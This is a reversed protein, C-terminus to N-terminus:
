ATAASHLLPARRVEIALQVGAQLYIMRRDANAAIAFLPNHGFSLQWRGCWLLTAVARICLYIAPLPATFSRRPVILLPSHASWHTLKFKVNHVAFPLLTYCTRRVQLAAAILIAVNEVMMDTQVRARVNCSAACVEHSYAPGDRWSHRVRSRCM